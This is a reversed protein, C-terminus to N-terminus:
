WVPYRKLLVSRSSIIDRLWDQYEQWEEPFHSALRGIKGALEVDKEKRLWLINIATIVIASVLMALAIIISWVQLYEPFFEPMILNHIEASM